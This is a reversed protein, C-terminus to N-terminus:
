KMALVIEFKNSIKKNEITEDTVDGGSFEKILNQAEQINTCAQLKELFGKKRKQFTTRTKHNIILGDNIDLLSRGSQFIIFRDYTDKFIVYRKGAAEKIHVPIPKQKRPKKSQKSKLQLDIQKIFLQYVPKLAKIVRSHYCNEYNEELEELKSVAEQRTEKLEKTTGIILFGDIKKGDLADEICDDLLYLSENRTVKSLEPKSQITDVVDEISQEDIITQIKEICNLVIDDSLIYNRKALRLVFGINSFWKDSIKQVKSHLVTDFTELYALIYDKSEKTSYVKSYYNLADILEIKTPTAPLKFYPEGGIGGSVINKIKERKEQSSM